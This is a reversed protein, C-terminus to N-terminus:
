VFTWFDSKDNWSRKMYSCKWYMELLYKWDANITKGTHSEYEFPDPYLKKYESIVTEFIEKESAAPNLKNMVKTPGYSVRSLEYPCYVDVPDGALTQYALFKLGDGKVFPPEKYLSGILPLERLKWKDDTWVLLEIGNCQFSDKDISALIPRNGKLLEEYSRITVVDDTEYYDDVKKAGLSILYDRTAELHVPKIINENRNNKYRTPLELQHRFTNKSSGIYIETKDAWTFDIMDTIIRKTNRKVASFDIPEQIDLIHFDTDKYEWNKESLFKKFETRNNFQKKKLSKIHTVEIKRAEGGAAMRYAILDGDIILITKEAM